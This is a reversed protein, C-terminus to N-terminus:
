RFLRQRDYDSYGGASAAAGIRPGRLIWKSGSNHAPTSRSRAGARVRVRVTAEIRSVALLLLLSVVLRRTMTFHASAQTPAIQTAARTCFHRPFCPYERHAIVRETPLRLLATVYPVCRRRYM